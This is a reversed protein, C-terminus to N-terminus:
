LHIEPGLTFVANTLGYGGLAGIEIAVDMGLDVAPALRFAIGGGLRLAGGLQSGLYAGLGVGLRPVVPARLGGFKWTLGISPEVLLLSSYYANYAGAAILRAGLTISPGRWAAMDYEAGAVFAGYSFPAYGCVRNGFADRGCYYGSSLSAAGIELRLVNDGGGYAGRHQAAAPAAGFLAGALAIARAWRRAM